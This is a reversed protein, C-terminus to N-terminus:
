SSEYVKKLFIIEQIIKEEVSPFEQLNKTGKKVINNYLENNNILEQVHYAILRPSDRDVYIVADKCLAKAWPEDSILLLRKYIWSEIINNSFSELKSLLFVIDIQQYLSLLEEKRVPGVISIMEYVKFKNMLEM